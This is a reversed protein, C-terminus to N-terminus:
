ILNIEVVRAGSVIDIAELFTVSPIDKIVPLEVKLIDLEQKYHEELYALMYKLMAIEMNMVDYMDNIFGMEFDLGIYENM